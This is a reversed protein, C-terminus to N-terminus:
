AINGDIEFVAVTPGRRTWFDRLPYRIRVSKWGLPRWHGEEGMHRDVARWNKKALAVYWARHGAIIVPDDASVWHTCGNAELWRAVDAMETWSLGDPNIYTM